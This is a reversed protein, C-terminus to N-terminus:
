MYTFGFAATFVCIDPLFFINEPNAANQKSVDIFQLAGLTTTEITYHIDRGVLMCTFAHEFGARSVFNEKTESIHRM